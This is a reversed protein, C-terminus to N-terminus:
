SHLRFITRRIENIARNLEGTAQHLQKTAQPDETLELVLHHLDLGAAHLRRIIAEGLGSGALDDRPATAPERPATAPERPATAPDEPATAPDEPATAPTVRDDLTPALAPDATRTKM